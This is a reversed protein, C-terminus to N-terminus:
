FPTKRATKGGFGTRGGQKVVFWMKGLKKGRQVVM